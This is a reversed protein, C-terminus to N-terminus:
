WNVIDDVSTQPVSHRWLGISWKRTQEGVGRSFKTGKEAPEPVDEYCLFYSFLINSLHSSAPPFSLSLSSAVDLGM